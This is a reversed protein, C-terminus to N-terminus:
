GVMEVDRLFRVGSIREAFEEGREESEVYPFVGVVEIVLVTAGVGNMGEPVDDVPRCYM